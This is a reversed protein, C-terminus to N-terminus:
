FIFGFTAMVNTTRQEFSFLPSQNNNVSYPRYSNKGLAQVVAFDIFFDTTRYGLGGSITRVARSIDNQKNIFPDALMQYGGRLRWEKLRFEAGLRINTVPKYLSKIRDNDGNYSIGTIESSYRAQSYNVQEIDATIFGHKKLFFTAGVNLRWPTTLNYESTVMDTSSSENALIESGDGYYDYNNWNSELRAFFNDTLNYFTPTSASIGVQIFDVPRAIGGVTLNVGSGRISLEEDLSFDSLPEGEFEERYSKESKYRLSTIGLGAGAFFRDDFNAGYSFSWQNQAGRTQVTEAQYPEGLVDTFYETPDNNPDLVTSEGILYNNYALETVTNFSYGNEDFQSPTRGTAEELFYDILSTASNFGEYRMSRNFHNTRTFTVAFTGRVFSGRAGDDSSIALGLGSINIGARTDNNNESIPTNGRFYDGEVSTYFQGPSFSFESKNYMGLGAPNTAASSFDGGLSVQAGGLAQIRASGGPQTRSFLLATETFSQAWLQGGLMTIVALVLGKKTKM